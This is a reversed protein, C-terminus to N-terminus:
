TVVVAKECERQTKQDGPGRNGFWLVLPGSWAMSSKAKPNRSQDVKPRDDVVDVLLGRVGSLDKMLVGVMPVWTEKM